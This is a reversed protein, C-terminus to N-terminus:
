REQVSRRHHMDSPRGAPTRRDLNQDLLDNRLSHDIRNHVEVLDFDIAFPRLPLPRFSRQHLMIHTGDSYYNRASHVQILVYHM